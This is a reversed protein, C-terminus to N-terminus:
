VGIGEWGCAELGRCRTNPGKLDADPVALDRVVQAVVRVTESSRRGHAVGDLYEMCGRM